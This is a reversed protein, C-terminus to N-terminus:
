IRWPWLFYRARDWFQLQKFREMAKGLLIALSGRSAPNPMGGVILDTKGDQNFDGAAVAYCLCPVATTIEAQFTGDGRGLLIAVGNDVAVALDPVRDGNFDGVAIAEALPPVTYNVAPEFVGAAGNLLISVTNSESNVVALDQRHDGNFDAAAVAVSNVGSPYARPARFLAKPDAATLTSAAMMLLMGSLFL